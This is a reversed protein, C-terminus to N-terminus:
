HTHRANHDPPYRDPLARANVAALAVDTAAAMGAGAKGVGSTDRADDVTSVNARRPMSLRVPGTVPIAAAGPV